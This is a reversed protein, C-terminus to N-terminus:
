MTHLLIPFSGRVGGGASVEKVLADLSPEQLVIEQFASVEYKAPFWRRVYISLQFSVDSITRAVTSECVRNYEYM